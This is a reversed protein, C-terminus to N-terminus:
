ILATFSPFPVIRNCPTAVVLAVIARENDIEIESYNSLHDGHLAIPM